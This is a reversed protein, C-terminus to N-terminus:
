NRIMMQGGGRKRMEEMQAEVMKRYGYQTILEGKSPAKIENKKLPRSEFKQAVTVREGNNIDLALVAGPLTYYREPGLFPRLKDTYWATVEQPRDPRSEDTYYAMKCEYGQIVKTEEGFKWPTIKLSDSIL